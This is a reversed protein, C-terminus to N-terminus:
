ESYVIGFIATVTQRVRSLWKQQLHGISSWDNRMDKEIRKCKNPARNNRTLYESQIVSIQTPDKWFVTIVIITSIIVKTECYVSIPNEWTM